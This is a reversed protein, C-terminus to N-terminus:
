HGPYPVEFGGKGEAGGEDACVLLCFFSFVVYKPNTVDIAFESGEVVQRFREDGVDVEFGDQVAGGGMGEDGKKRKQDKRKQKKGKSKEAKIVEKM